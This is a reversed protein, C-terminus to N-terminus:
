LEYYVGELALDVYRPTGDIGQAPCCFPLPVPRGVVHLKNPNVSYLHILDNSEETSICFIASAAHFLETEIEIRSDANDWYGQQQRRKGNSIVTQVFPVNFQRSLDMVARGSNWYVGHLIHIPWKQNQIIEAILKVTHNHFSNLFRKDIPAIEGLAIRHISTFDSLRQFAPLNPDAHRTVVSAYRCKLALGRLMERVYAHTGGGEGAGSPQVPDAHLSIILVNATENQPIPATEDRETDPIM